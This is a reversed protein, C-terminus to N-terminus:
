GRKEDLLRDVLLLTGSLLNHLPVALGHSSISELNFRRPRLQRATALERATPIPVSATQQSM